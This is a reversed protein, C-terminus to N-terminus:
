ALTWAFLFVLTLVVYLLYISLHGAQLVRLRGAAEATWRLVPAVLRDLIPDPLHSRYRSPKPFLGRVRPFSRVPWLLWGFADVLVQGFSSATYQMRATPAEYGCDWTLARRSSMTRIRAWAGLAGLLGLGAVLSLTWLKAETHLTPLVMAPALAAAARSLAPSLLVPAVGLLVCAGALVKMPLLMTGPSEHAARDSRPEGLFIIGCARAFSAVALGGVLALALVLAAAWIWTGAALAKFAGLYILWESAFGNFPPLGCLSASGVLFLGATWPMSKALGGHSEMDRTGTAHLISGAGLFVLPKFLSHNLVHFLAGAGGLLVLSPQNLSKGVLAMGLGMAIIGVNEISSYALFRKLDRQGLAFGLGLIGSAAGMGALLGGWWLPPDDVWLILRCFGLIGMKLMLGSLLASVHSPAAAHAVPLWVHLPALGAKLGFGVLLLLFALTGLASRAFGHPLAQFDYSGLAAALLSFGAILCLTGAHAAVLYTWGAERVASERDEATIMLFGLLAMIEWAVLFLVANQAATLLQMSAVTAGFYLRLRGASDHDGWYARGYHALLPSVLSVCLLFLAGTADLGLLFRAHPLAWPASFTWAGGGLLVGLAQVLGLIGSALLCGEGHRPDRPLGSLLALLIASLLLSPILM